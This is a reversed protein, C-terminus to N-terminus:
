LLIKEGTNLSNWGSICIVRVPRLSNSPFTFLFINKGTHQKQLSPFYAVTVTKASPSSNNIAKLAFRFMFSPPKLTTSPLVSTLGWLWYWLFFIIWWHWKTGTFYSAGPHQSSTHKLKNASVNSSAFFQLWILFFSFCYLFLIEYSEILTLFPLHQFLAHISHLWSTFAAAETRSEGTTSQRAAKASWWIYLGKWFHATMPFETPLADDGRLSGARGSGGHIILTQRDWETGHHGILWGSFRKMCAAFSGPPQRTCASLRWM